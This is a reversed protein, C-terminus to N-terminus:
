MGGPFHSCPELNVLNREGSLIPAWILLYVSEYILLIINVAWRLSINGLAVAAKIGMPSPAISPCCCKPHTRQHTEIAHRTLNKKNKTIYLFKM